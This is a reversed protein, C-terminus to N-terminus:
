TIHSLVVLALNFPCPSKVGQIHCCHMIGTSSNVCHNMHHEFQCRPVIDLHPYLRIYQHHVFKCCSTCYRNPRARAGVPKMARAVHTFWARNCLVCELSSKFRGSGPLSLVQEILWMCLKLIYRSTNLSKAVFKMWVCDNLQLSEMFVM